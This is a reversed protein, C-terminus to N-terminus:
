ILAASCIRRTITNKQNEKGNKVKEQGSTRRRRSFSSPLDLSSFSNFIFSEIINKGIFSTWIKVVAVIPIVVWLWWGHLSFLSIVECLVTIYLIDKAQEATGTSVNIDLGSKIMASLMWYIAIHVFLSFNSMPLIQSFHSLLFLLFLRILYFFIGLFLCHTAM